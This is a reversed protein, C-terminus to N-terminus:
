PVSFGTPLGASSRISNITRQLSIWEETTTDEETQLQRLSTIQLQVSNSVPTTTLYTNSAIYSPETNTLYPEEEITYDPEIYYYVQQQQLTPETSISLGAVIGIVTVVVLSVALILATNNGM